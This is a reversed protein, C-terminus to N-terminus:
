ECPRGGCTPSVEVTKRMYFPAGPTALNLMALLKYRGPKVNLVDKLVCTFATRPRLERVTNTSADTSHRLSWAYWVDRTRTFTTGRVPPAAPWGLLVDAPSPAAFELHWWIRSPNAVRVVWTVPEGSRLPKPAYAFSFTVHRLHPTRAPLPTVPGCDGLWRSFGRASDATGGLAAIVGTAVVAIAAACRAM